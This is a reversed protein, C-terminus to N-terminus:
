NALIDGKVKLDEAVQLFSNLHEQAVSVEGHYMFELVAEMDKVKVGRLYLLVQSGPLCREQSRSLVSRPHVHFSLNILGKVVQLISQM